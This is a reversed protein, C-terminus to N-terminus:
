IDKSLSNFRALQDMVENAMMDPKVPTISAYGEYVAGTDSEPTREMTVSSGGIWLYEGGRPDTRVNVENSYFRNGLRTLKFGKFESIEPTPINVNLMVGDPMGNEVVDRVIKDMIPESWKFDYTKRSVLSFAVAPLKQMTGEMAGGVTGSYLVDAGLNPGRNIGSLVLDPRHPLLHNLGIFVCDTPTGTLAWMNKRIEQARLPHTLTIAHSVGSREIDPAVIYVEGYRQAVKALSELGPSLVGDDNTVFIRM